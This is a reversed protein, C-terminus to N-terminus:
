SGSRGYPKAKVPPSAVSTQPAGPPTTTTATDGMTMGTGAQIFTGNAPAGGAVGEHLAVSLGM